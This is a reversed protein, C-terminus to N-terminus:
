PISLNTWGGSGHLPVADTYHGLLKYLPLDFIKAKLDWPAIDLASLAYLALGKRGGDRLCWFTDECLKEIQLPDRGLPISKRNNELLEWTVFGGRGPALGGREPTPRSTFLASPLRERLIDFRPTKIGM